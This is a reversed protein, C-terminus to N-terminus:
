LSRTRVISHSRAKPPKPNREDFIRMAIEVVSQNPNGLDIEIDYDPVVISVFFLGGEHKIPIQNERNDRHFLHSRTETIRWGKQLLRSESLINHTLKSSFVAGMITLGVESGTTSDKFRLYKLHAIDVVCGGAFGGLNRTIGTKSLLLKSDNVCHNTAGGDLLFEVVREAPDSDGPVIHAPKSFNTASVFQPPVCEEPKNQSPM